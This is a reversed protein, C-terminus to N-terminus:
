QSNRGRQQVDGDTSPTTEHGRHCVRFSLPVTSSSSALWLRYRNILDHQHLKYWRRLTPVMWDPIFSFGFGSSFSVCLLFTVILHYCYWKKLRGTRKRGRSISRLNRRTATVPHGNSSAVILHGSRTSDIQHVHAKSRLITAKKLPTSGISSYRTLKKEQFNNLWRTTM